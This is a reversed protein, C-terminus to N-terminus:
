AEKSLDNTTLKDLKPHIPDGGRYLGWGSHLLKDLVEAVREAERCEWRYRSSTLYRATHRATGRYDIGGCGSCRKIM